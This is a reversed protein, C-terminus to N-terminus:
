GEVHKGLRRALRDCLEAISSCRENLKGLSELAEDGSLEMMVM